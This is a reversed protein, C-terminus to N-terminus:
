KGVNQAMQHQQKYTSDEQHLSDWDFKLPLEATAPFFKKESVTSLNTVVYTLVNGSDVTWAQLVADCKM